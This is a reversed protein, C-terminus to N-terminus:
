KGAFGFPRGTLIRLGNRCFDGAVVAFIGTKSLSACSVLNSRRADSVGSCQTLRRSTGSVSTSLGVRGWAFRHWSCSWERNCGTQRPRQSHGERANVPHVSTAAFGVTAKSSGEGNRSHRSSAGGASGLSPGILRASPVIQSTDAGPMGESRVSQSGFSM